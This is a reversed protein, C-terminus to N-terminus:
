RWSSKTAGTCLEASDILNWGDDVWDTASIRVFSPLEPSPNSSQRLMWPKSSFVSARNDLSGGYEDTRTNALPSYFQHFLYDMHQMYNLLM